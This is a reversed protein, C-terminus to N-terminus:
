SLGYRQGNFLQLGPRLITSAKKSGIEGHVFGPRSSKSKDMQANNSKLHGVAQSSMKVLTPVYEWCDFEKTLTNDSKM